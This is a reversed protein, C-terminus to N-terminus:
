AVSGRQPTQIVRADGGPCRPGIRDGCLNGRERHVGDSRDRRYGTHGPPVTTARGPSGGRRLRWARTRVGCALTSELPLFWFCGEVWRRRDKGTRCRRRDFEGALGQRWSPEPREHNLKEHEPVQGSARHQHAGAAHTAACPSGVGSLNFPGRGKPREAALGRCPIRVRSRTWVRKSGDRSPLRRAKGRRGAEAPAFWGDSLACPNRVPRNTRHIVRALRRRAPRAVRM